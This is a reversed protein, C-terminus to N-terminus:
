FHFTPIQKDVTICISLSTLTKYAPFYKNFNYNNYFFLTFKIVLNRKKRKKKYINNGKFFILLKVNTYVM